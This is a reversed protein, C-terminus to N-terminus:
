TGNSIHPPSSIGGSTKKM